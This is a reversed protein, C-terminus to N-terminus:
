TPMAGEIHGSLPSNRNPAEGPGANSAKVRVAGTPMGPMAPGPPRARRASAPETAVVAGEEAVAVAM